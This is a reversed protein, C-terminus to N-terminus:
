FPYLYKLSPTIFMFYFFLLPNITLIGILFIRFYKTKTLNQEGQLVMTFALTIVMFCLCTNIIWILGKIPIDSTKITKVIFVLTVIKMLFLSFIVLLNPGLFLLPIVEQARNKWYFVIILLQVSLILRIIKYCGIYFDLFSSFIFNSSRQFSVIYLSVLTILPLFVAKNAGVSELIVLFAFVMSKVLFRIEIEKQKFLQIKQINAKILYYISKAETLPLFVALVMWHLEYYSVLGIFFTLIEIILFDFKIANCIHGFRLEDSFEEYKEGGEQINIEPASQIKCIQDGIGIGIEPSVKNTKVRKIGIQTDETRDTKDTKKDIGKGM